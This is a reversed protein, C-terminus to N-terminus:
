LIIGGVDFSVEGPEDVRERRKKLVWRAKQGALDMTRPEASPSYTRGDNEIAIRGNIRPGFGTAVGPVHKAWLCIRHKEKCYPCSNQTMQDPQKVSKGVLKSMLCFGPEPNLKNLPGVCYKDIAEIKAGITAKHGFLSIFYSLIADREEQTHEWALVFMSLLEAAKEEATPPMPLMSSTTTTVQSGMNTEEGGQGAEHNQGAGFTPLSALSDVEGHNVVDQKRIRKRLDLSGLEEPGQRKRSSRQSAHGSTAADLGEDTMSIDEAKIQDVDASLETKDEPTDQGTECTVNDDPPGMTSEQPQIENSRGAEITQRHEPDSELSTRLDREHALLRSQLEKRERVLQDVEQRNLTLFNEFDNSQFDQLKSSIAQIDDKTAQNGSGVSGETEADEQKQTSSMGALAAINADQGTALAVPAQITNEEQEKMQTRTQTSTNQGDSTEGVSTSAGQAPTPAPERLSNLLQARELTPRVVRLEEGLEQLRTQAHDHRGGGRSYTMSTGRMSFRSRGSQRGRSSNGRQGYQARRGRQGRQNGAGPRSGPRGYPSYSNAVYAGANHPSEPHGFYPEENYEQAGQEQGYYADFQNGYQNQHGQEERARHQDFAIGPGYQHHRQDERERPGDPARNFDAAYPQANGTWGHPSNSYTGEQFELYEPRQSSQGQVYSGGRAPTAGYSNVRQPTRSFHGYQYHAM